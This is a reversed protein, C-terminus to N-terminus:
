KYEFMTSNEVTTTTLYIFLYIIFYNYVYFVVFAL